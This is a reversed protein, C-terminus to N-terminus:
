LSNGDVFDNLRKRFMLNQEMLLANMTDVTLLDQVQSKLRKCKEVENLYDDYAKQLEGSNRNDELKTIHRELNNKDNKLDEIEGLKEQIVANLREVETQSEQMLRDREGKENELEAQLRIIEDSRENALEQFIRLDNRIMKVDHESLAKLTQKGVEQAKPEDVVTKKVEVPKVEKRVEKERIMGDGAKEFLHKNKMKINYVTQPAVDYKDVLEQTKLGNILDQLILSNRKEIEPNKKAGVQVEGELAKGINRIKAYVDCPKCNEYSSNRKTCVKCNQSELRNLEGLLSLRAKRLEKRDNM